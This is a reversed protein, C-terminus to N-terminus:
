ASLAMLRQARSLRINFHKLVTRRLTANLFDTNGREGSIAAKIIARYIDRHQCLDSAWQKFTKRWEEDYYEMHTRGDWLFSLQNDGHRYRYVAAVIEYADELLFAGKHIETKIQLTFDDELGLPNEQLMYGEYAAQAWVHLLSDKSFAQVTKLLYNKDTPFFRVDISM